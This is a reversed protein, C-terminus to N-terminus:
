SLLQKSFGCNLCKKKDCYFKKLQILAQSEAADKATIGLEAWMDVIGNVEAKCQHLLEIAIEREEENDLYAAYAFRLPAVVNIIINQMFGKGIPNVKRAPKKGFTYHQRWYDSLPVELVNNVQEVTNCRLLSQFFDADSAILAAVYALRLTPFGSPRIKSFKWCGSHLASLKYKQQQYLYEKRLQESYADTEKELFGAQGFLIAEIAQPQFTNKRLLSLPTNEALQQFADNNLGSGLYRMFTIYATTEWDNKTKELTELIRTSKEVMREVVLRELWFSTDSIPNEVLLTECPIRRKGAMLIHYKEVAGPHLFPSIELCPILQNQANFVPKDDNLVVHLIVNEYASDADHKHAYWDSANLHMEVNGVFLIDGIKIKANLFDPGANTNHVGPSIVEIREGKNTALIPFDYLKYKWAYHIFEEKVL